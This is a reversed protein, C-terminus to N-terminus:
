VPEKLPYDGFYRFHIRLMYSQLKPCKLDVIEKIPIEYPLHYGCILHAFLSFDGPSVTDGTIYTSGGLIRELAELDQQLLEVVEEKKHYGTGDSKVRTWLSYYILRQMYVLHWSPTKANGKITRAFLPMNEELKSYLNLIYISKDCTRQVLHSIAKQDATLNYKLNHEKILFNIIVDSDPYHVGNYEIFPKKGESSLALFKAEIPVYNIQHYRLFYELKVCFPSANICYDNDAFKILYVTNKEFNPVVLKMSLDDRHASKGCYDHLFRLILLVILTILSALLVITLTDM